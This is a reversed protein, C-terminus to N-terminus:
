LRPRDRVLWALALTLLIALWAQGHIGLLEQTGCRLFRDALFTAASATSVLFGRHLARLDRRWQDQHGM